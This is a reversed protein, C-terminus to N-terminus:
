RLDNLVGIMRAKAANKPDIFAILVNYGTGTPNRPNEEFFVFGYSRDEIALEKGVRTTMESQFGVIDRPAVGAKNAKFAAWEADVKAGDLFLEVAVTDPYRELLRKFQAENAVAHELRKANAQATKYTTHKKVEPIDKAVVELPAFQLRYHEFLRTMHAFREVAEDHDRYAIWEEMSM